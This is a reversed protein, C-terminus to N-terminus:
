VIIIKELETKVEDFVEDWNGLEKQKFLKVSKYWPSYTIDTHWRWNQVYPLLIWCPKGMAGALHAVSTDNCIVLDMNEIAAATDGFDNFTDGLNIVDYEKPIKEFEEEGDGKQVSYFQTNQLNFIKFFSEISIVRSLDNEISGMWKIGIKFKNNNFYEEKYKKTKEANAKLYGSSLPIDETNLNLVFPISMIPLHVDFILDKPLTRNDIIEAGFNNEKFFDIFCVQPKFLVKAFRDKLLDLYRIYMLTDGLASEYYVFINKDKMTSGDWFPKDKMQEKYLQEQCFIAFPRSPRYEHLPLGKKFNKAKIYSISLFYLIDTDNKNTNYEHAKEYNEIAKFTDNLKEYLNGLNFYIAVNQPEIVLAKNYAEIAKDFQNISKYALGLNFLSDFNKEDYELAKQYCSIAEEYNKDEFYARGLNGYFYASPILEAAKKINFIAEEIKNQQLKLLGLLNLSNANNPFEKIIQLYQQEAEILKGSQHLQIADNIQQKVYIPM